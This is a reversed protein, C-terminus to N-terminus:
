SVSIDSWANEDEKSNPPLQDAERRQRWVAPSVVRLVWQISKQQQQTESRSPISQFVFLYRPEAPISIHNSLRGARPM